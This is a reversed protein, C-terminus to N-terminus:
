LVWHEKTKVEGNIITQEVSSIYGRKEIEEFSKICHWYYYIELETPTGKSLVWKDFPMIRNLNFRAREAATQKMIGGSINTLTETGFFKILGREVAFAKNEQLNIAFYMVKVQQNAKHILQIKNIKFPNTSTGKKAERIHDFPRKKTGKGIYFIEHSVPDILFYVFYKNCPKNQLSYGARIAAQTANLDILYEDGCRRQKETLDSYAM